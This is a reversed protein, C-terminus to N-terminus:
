AKEVSYVEVVEDGLPGWKLKGANDAEMAKAEADGEDVAEVTICETAVARKQLTVKFQHGRPPVFDPAKPADIKAWRVDPHVEANWGGEGGPASVSVTNEKVDNVDLVEGDDWRSTVRNFRYCVYLGKTPPLTLFTTM